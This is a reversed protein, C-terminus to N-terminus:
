FKVLMYLGPVVSNEDSSAPLELYFLSVRLQVM